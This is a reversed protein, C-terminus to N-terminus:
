EESGSYHVLSVGEFVRPHDIKIGNYDPMIFLTKDFPILKKSIIHEISRLYITKNRM